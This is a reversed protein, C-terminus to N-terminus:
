KLAMPLYISRMVLLTTTDDKIEVLPMSDTGPINKTVTIKSTIASGIVADDNIRMKFRIVLQGYTSTDAAAPLTVSPWSLVNGNIEPTIYTPDEIDATDTIFTLTDPIAYEFGLAYSDSLPNTAQIEFVATQGPLAAVPTSNFWIAPKSLCIFVTPDVVGTRPPFAGVPSSATSAVALAGGGKGTIKLNLSYLKTSAVGTSKAITQGAWILTQKGEITTVTPIPTTTSKGVYEIGLPLTVTIITSTYDLKTNTNSVTLEYTRTTNIEACGTETFKSSLTVLTDVKVGAASWIAGGLPDAICSAPCKGNKLTRAWVGDVINDPLVTLGARAKFKITKTADSTGDKGISPVTWKLTTFTGSITSTPTTSVSSGTNLGVYTYDSPLRVEVPLNSETATKSTNKLTIIFNQENGISVTKPDVAITTEIKGCNAVVLASPTPDIVIFYKDDRFLMKNTYSVNSKGGCGEPVIAKFELTLTQGAGISPVVGGPFNNEWVLYGSQLSPEGGFINSPTTTTSGEVYDVAPLADVFGFPYSITGENTVTLKYTVTRDAVPTDGDDEMAIVSKDVVKSFTLPPNLRLCVITGGAGKVPENDEGEHYAVASVSNCYKVYNDGDARLKYSLYITSGADISINNWRIILNTVEVPPYEIGSVKDQASGDIYAFKGTGPGNGDGQPIKDIIEIGSVDSSSNNTLEIVYEFDAPGPLLYVNGSSEYPNDGASKKILLREVIGIRGAQTNCDIAQDTATLTASGGTTSTSYGAKVKVVFTMEKPQTLSGAPISFVWTIKPPTAQNNSTEKPSAELFTVGTQVQYTLTVNNITTPKYNQVVISIEGTEGFAITAPSAVPKKVVLASVVPISAGNFSLTTTAGNALPYEPSTLKVSPNKLVTCESVTGGTKKFVVQIDPLKEGPKLPGPFLWKIEKDKSPDFPQQYTGQNSSVFTAGTPIPDTVLINTATRADARITGDASKDKTGVANGVSIKFTGQDGTYITGTTVATKTASLVPGVVLTAVTDEGQGTTTGLPLLKASGSLTTINANTKPYLNTKTRLRVQFQGKQSQPLGHVLYCTSSIPTVGPPCTGHTITLPTKNPLQYATEPIADCKKPETKDDCYQNNGGSTPSYNLWWAQVYFDGDAITNTFTYTYTIVGGAVVGNPTSVDIISPTTANTIFNPSSTVGETVTAPEVQATISDAPAEISTVTTEPLTEDSPAATDLDSLSAKPPLQTGLIEGVQTTNPKPPEPTPTQASVSTGGMSMGILAVMLITAMRQGTSAYM